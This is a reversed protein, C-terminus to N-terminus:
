KIAQALSLWQWIHFSSSEYGELYQKYLVNIRDGDVFDNSANLSTLQM